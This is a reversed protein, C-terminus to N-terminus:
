RFVSITWSFQVLKPIVYFFTGIVFKKMGDKSALQWHENNMKEYYPVVNAAISLLSGMITGILKVNDWDFAFCDLPKVWVIYLLLVFQPIDEFYVLGANYELIEKELDILGPLFVHEFKKDLKM